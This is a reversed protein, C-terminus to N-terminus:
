NEQSNEMDSKKEEKKEQSSAKSIKVDGSIKIDDNGTRNFVTQSPQPQTESIEDGTENDAAAETEKIMQEVDEVSYGKRLVTIIFVLIFLVAGIDCYSLPYGTVLSESNGTAILMLRPISYTLIFFSSVCGCAIVSWMSGKSNVESAVRAFTLFFIMLFSYACLELFLESVRIFSIIVTLRSLVKIVAWALPALAIIKLKKHFSKGALYSIGFVVFYCCSVFAFLAQLHHLTSVSQVNQIITATSPGNSIYNSVADYFLTGAFVFSALGLVIHRGKPAVSAPIRGSLYTLLLVLVTVLALVGYLAYVGINGYDEYFGTVTDTNKLMLFIRLPCSILIGFCMIIIAADPSVANSSNKIKLVICGKM